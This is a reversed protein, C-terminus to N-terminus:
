QSWVRCDTILPDGPGPDTSRRTPRNTPRHASMNESPSSELQNTPQKARCNEYNTRQVKQQTWQNDHPPCPTHTDRQWPASSQGLVRTELLAFLQFSHKLSRTPSHTAVATRSVMLKFLRIFDSLFSFMRFLCVCVLFSEIWVFKAFGSDHFFTGDVQVRGFSQCSGHRRTELPKTCLNEWKSARELGDERSRSAFTTENKFNFKRNTSKAGTITHASCLALPIQNIPEWESSATTSQDPGLRFM